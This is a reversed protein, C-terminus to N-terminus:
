NEKGYKNTEKRQHVQHKDARMDMKMYQQCHERLSGGKKCSYGGRKGYYLVNRKIGCGYKTGQETDTKDGCGKIQSSQHSREYLFSFPATGM